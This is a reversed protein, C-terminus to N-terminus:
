IVHTFILACLIIGLIGVCAFMIGLLKFIKGLSSTKDGPVYIQRIQKPNYYLKVSEGESFCKTSIGIKSEQEVTEGNADYRYTFYWVNSNMDSSIVRGSRVNVVKALTERTCLKKKEELNKNCENSILLFVLSIICFFVSFIVAEFDTM